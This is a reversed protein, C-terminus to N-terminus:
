NLIDDFDEFDEESIEKIETLEFDSDKTDLGFSKAIEGQTKIDIKWGTLKSALRVNQGKKGIALSLQDDPVIVRSAKLSDNTEVSIVKAPSLARAIYELVDDSWVVLDIKEGSLESTITNIRTGRNGVCSGVPDINPNETYVAVKARSGADRAISKVIVDGNAIEPIELELLKRMFGNNSRSVQIQPGKFGDKIKKVYVKIRDGVNFKEGAIQDNELMVGETHSGTINVFITGNDVRKVVTTLLEDEKESLEEVAIQREIEKLKQVVVQQATQAAIRGFEKTSEEALVSDGVKYSKKILRAEDLSIQKDADEVVDVVTKYSYIKITNKEPNLKVMASKAQGYM